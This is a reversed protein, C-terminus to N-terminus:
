VRFTAPEFGAPVVWWRDACIGWQTATKAGVSRRGHGTKDPRSLVAKYMRDLSTAVTDLESDYLDSYINATVVPSPHGVWDPDYRADALTQGHTRTM